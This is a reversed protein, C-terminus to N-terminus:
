STVVTHVSLSRSEHFARQYGHPVVAYAEAKATASSRTSYTRARVNTSTETTTLTNEGYATASAEADALNKLAFTEAYAYVNRSGVISNGRDLELFDLDHINM